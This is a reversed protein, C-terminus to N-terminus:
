CIRCTCVQFDAWVVAEPHLLVHPDHDPKQTSYGMGFRYTGDSLSASPSGSSVLNNISTHARISLDVVSPGAETSRCPNVREWSGNVNRILVLVSCGPASRTYIPVDLTNTITATITDSPAYIAHDMSITVPGQAATPPAAPGNSFCLPGVRGMCATLVPPACLLGFCLVTRKRVM